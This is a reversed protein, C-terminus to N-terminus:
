QWWMVAGAQAFLDDDELLGVVAFGEYGGDKERDWFADLVTEQDNTTISSVPVGLDHLQNRLNSSGIAHLLKQNALITNQARRGRRMNDSFALCGTTNQQSRAV